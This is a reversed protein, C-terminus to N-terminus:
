IVKRESQIEEKQINIQINNNTKKKLCHLKGPGINRPSYTNKHKLLRVFSTM